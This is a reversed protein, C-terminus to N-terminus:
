RIKEGVLTYQKENRAMGVIINGRVRTHHLYKGFPNMAAFRVFIIRPGVNEKFM